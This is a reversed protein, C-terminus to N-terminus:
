ATVVPGDGIRLTVTFSAAVDARGKAFLGIEGGVTVGLEVAVTEVSIGEAIGEVKSAFWSSAERLAEHLKQKMQEPSLSAEVPKFKRKVWEPILAEPEGGPEIVTPQKQPEAGEPEFAFIKM